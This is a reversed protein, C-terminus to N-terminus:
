KVARAQRGYDLKKTESDPFYHALIETRTSTKGKWGAGDQCLGVGHGCGRGDLIVTEGDAGPTVTFSTSKLPIGGRFFLRRFADARMEFSGESHIVKVYWLYGGPLTEKTGLGQLEGMSVGNEAAWPKLLGEIQRLKLPLKWRYHQSWQCGDCPVGQLPPIAEGGFVWAGNTTNGGCCAHFYAPFAKGKCTLYEGETDRVAKRVANTEVSWGGYAQFAEWGEFGQEPAQKGRLAMHYLAFTRSVIAQCELAAPPFDRRMEAGVVGAVYEELSVQNVARVKGGLNFLDLSGRYARGTGQSDPAAVCITLGTPALRIPSPYHAGRLRFGEGDAVIPTRDPLSLDARLRADPLTSLRVPGRASLLLGDAQDPLVHVRIPYGAPRIATSGDGGGCGALISLLGALAAALFAGATGARVGSSGSPPRNM